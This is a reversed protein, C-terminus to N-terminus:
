KGYKRVKKKNFKRHLKITLNWIVDCGYSLVVAIAVLGIICIKPLCENDKIVYYNEAFQKVLGVLVLWSMM